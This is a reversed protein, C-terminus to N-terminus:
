VHQIWYLSKFFYVKYNNKLLCFTKILRSLKLLLVNGRGEELLKKGDFGDEFNILLQMNQQLTKTKAVAKSNCIYLRYHIPSSLM